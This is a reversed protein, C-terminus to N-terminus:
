RTSSFPLPLKFLRLRLFDPFSGEKAFTRNYKSIWLGKTNCPLLNRKLFLQGKFGSTSEVLAVTDDVTHVIMHFTRVLAGDLWCTLLHLKAPANSYDLKQLEQLPLIVLLRFKPSRTLFCRFLAQACYTNKHARNLVILINDLSNAQIILSM